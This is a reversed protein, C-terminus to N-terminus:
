ELIYTDIISKWHLYGAGTLHLGDNTYNKDLKNDGDTFEPYLDIYRLEYKGAMATLETNLRIIMDTKDAHDKFKNFDDNVPLVSQILIQTKPSDRRIKNIIKHYNEIIESVSRGRALDNVGIM